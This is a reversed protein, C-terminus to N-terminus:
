SAASKAAVMDALDLEKPDIGLDDFLRRCLDKSRRSIGAGRAELAYRLLRDRLRNKAHIDERELTWHPSDTDTLTYKTRWLEDLRLEFEKYTM